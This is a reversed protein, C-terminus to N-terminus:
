AAAAAAAGACAAAAAVSSEEGAGAARAAPAAAAASIGSDPDVTSCGSRHSPPTGTAGGWGGVDFVGAGAGEVAAAADWVAAPVAGGTGRAETDGEASVAADAAAPVDLWCCGAAAATVPGCGAVLWYGSRSGAM